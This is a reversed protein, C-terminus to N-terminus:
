KTTCVPARQGLGRQLLTELSPEALCAQGTLVVGKMRQPSERRRPPHSMAKVQALDLQKETMLIRLCRHRVEATVKVLYRLIYVVINRWHAFSEIMAIPIIGTDPSARVVCTWGHKTNRLRTWRGLKHVLISPVGQHTQGRCQRLM